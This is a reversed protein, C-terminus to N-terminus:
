SPIYKVGQELTEITLKSFAFASQTIDNAFGKQTDCLIKFILLANKKEIFHKSVIPDKVRTLDSKKFTTKGPPHWNSEGKM